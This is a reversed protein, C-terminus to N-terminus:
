KEGIKVAAYLAFIGLVLGAALLVPNHQKIDAFLLLLGAGAFQGVLLLIALALRLRYQKKSLEPHQLSLLVKVGLMIGGFTFVALALGLIFSLM